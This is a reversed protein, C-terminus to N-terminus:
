TMTSEDNVVFDGISEGDVNVIRFSKNLVWLLNAADSFMAVKSFVVDYGGDQYTELVWRYTGDENYKLILQPESWDDDPNPFPLTTINIGFLCLIVNCEKKDLVVAMIFDEDNSANNRIDRIRRQWMQSQTSM